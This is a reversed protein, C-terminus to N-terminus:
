TTVDGWRVPLLEPAIGEFGERNNPYKFQLKLTGNTFAVSGYNLDYLGLCGNWTFVFGNEPALSLSVNVGLGDGYYHEGAWDTKTHRLERRIARIKAQSAARSSGSTKEENQQTQSYASLNLLCGLLLLFFLAEPKDHRQAFELKIEWPV